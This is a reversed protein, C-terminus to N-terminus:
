PKIYGKELDVLEEIEVANGKQDLYLTSVQLFLNEQFLKENVMGLSFSMTSNKEDFTSYGGFKELPSAALEGSATVIALSADSKLAPITIFLDDLYIGNPYCGSIVRCPNSRIIGAAMMRNEENNCIYDKLGPNSCSGSECDCFGLELSTGESPRIDSENIKGMKGEVSAIDSTTFLPDAPDCSIIVISLFLIVSRFINM